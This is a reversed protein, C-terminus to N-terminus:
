VSVTKEAGNREYTLAFSNKENKDMFASFEHWYTIKQGNLSLIKDGETLGLQEAPSDPAVVDIVTGVIPSFPKHVGSKFLTMGIDAPATLTHTTGDQRLVEVQTEDRLLMYKNIDTVSELPEGNVKIFQDGDEFGYAKMSEHVAFGEPMTEPTVFERGYQFLILAYILFGVIINVTVGGVMIILRQW